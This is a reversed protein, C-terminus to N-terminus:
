TYMYEIASRPFCNINEAVRNDQTVDFFCLDNDITCSTLKCSEHECIQVSMAGTCSEQMATPEKGATCGLINEALWTGTTVGLEGRDTLHRTM